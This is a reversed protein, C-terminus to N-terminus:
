EVIVKGEMYPHHICYYEFTGKQEFTYSFTKGGSLSGSDFVKDRSTVTHIVSDSNYWTVTTGVPINLVAPKFAFGEIAVEIRPLMVPPTSPTPTNPLGPSPASPAPSQSQCSIGFGAIFLVILFLSMLGTTKVTILQNFRNKM